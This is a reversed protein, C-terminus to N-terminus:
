PWGASQRNRVDYDRVIRMLARHEQLAKRNDEIRANIAQMEFGHQQWDREEPPKALISNTLEVKADRLASEVLELWNQQGEAFIHPSFM